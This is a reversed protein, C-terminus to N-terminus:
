LKSIEKDIYSQPVIKLVDDEKILYLKEDVLDIATKIVDLISVSLNDLKIIGIEDLVADSGSEPFATVVQDGVRDVPCRKYIPEDTIVIGGAHVSTQRIKDVFFPVRDLVNKNKLYFDYQKKNETKIIELNEEWSLTSDLAATFENSAKFEVEYIRLLDKAASAPGFTSYAGVPLCREKGYKNILYNKVAEKGSPSMDADYDPSGVIDKVQILNAAKDKVSSTFGLVFPIIYRDDLKDKKSEMELYLNRGNDYFIKANSIESKYKLLHEKALVGQKFLSVIKKDCFSKLEEYTM